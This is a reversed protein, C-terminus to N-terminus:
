PILKALKKSDIEHHFSKGYCTYGELLSVSTQMATTCDAKSYLQKDNWTFAGIMAELKMIESLPMEQASSSAHRYYHEIIHGNLTVLDIFPKLHPRAAASMEFARSSLM